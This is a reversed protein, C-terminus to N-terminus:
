MGCLTSRLLEWEAVATHPALLVSQAAIRGIDSGLSADRNRDVWRGRAM